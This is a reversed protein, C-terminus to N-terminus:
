RPNSSSRSSCSPNPQGAVVGRRAARSPCSAARVRSSVRLEGGPRTAVTEAEIDANRTWGSGTTTGSTTSRSSHASRPQRRRAQEIWHPCGARLGSVWRHQFHQRLRNVPPESTIIRPKKTGDSKTVTSANEVRRGSPGYRQDVRRTSPRARRPPSRQEDGRRDQRHREPNPQSPNDAVQGRAPSRGNRAM